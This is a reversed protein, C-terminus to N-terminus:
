STASKFCELQNFLRQLIALNLFFVKYAGQKQAEQLLAEIGPLLVPFISGELFETIPGVVVDVVIIHM